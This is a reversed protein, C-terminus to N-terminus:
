DTREGAEENIGDNWFETIKKGQKEMDRIEKIRLEARKINQERLYACHADPGDLVVFDRTCLGGATRATCAYEGVRPCKVVPM